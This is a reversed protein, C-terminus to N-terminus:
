GEGRKKLADALPNMVVEDSFQRPIDAQELVEVAKISVDIRRKERDAKLTTAKVVQGVRLAARLSDVRESSVESIHLRGELGEVIELWALNEELRVVKADFIVGANLRDGANDWPDGSLQKVGLSLRNRAPDAELIRVEVQKGVAYDGADTPKKPRGVWTLDGIHCLGEIGSAVEVFLGYEEIRTITGTVNSGVPHSDLLTAWPNAEIQRLSLSIRRSSPDVALVKVDVEDGEKLVDSAHQPRTTWSLESIHVLGQLGEGLEIFAGFEAFGRVRGHLVAGAEIGELRAGAAEALVERRSLAIRGKDRDISVIKVEVEDGISVLAAPDGVHETALESIHILGDVGGLDVFAGFPQLSRVRGRVVSGEVLTALVDARGQERDKKWLQGRSVLLEGSKDDFGRIEVELERGIAAMAEHAGIGSERGPLFARTGAVTVAFGGRTPYRIVAPSVARRSVLAALTHHQEIYHAKALSVLVSGDGAVGEVLVRVVQGPELSGTAGPIRMEALTCFAKRGDALTLAVLGGEVGVLSADVIEPGVVAGDDQWKEALLAELAADPPPLKWTADIAELPASTESM